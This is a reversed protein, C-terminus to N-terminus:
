AVSKSLQEEQFLYHICVFVQAYKQALLLSNNIYKLNFLVLVM